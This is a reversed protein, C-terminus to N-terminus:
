ERMIRAYIPAVGAGFLRVSWNILRADLGVRWHARNGHVARWVAQAVRAPPVKVGLRRLTCLSTAKPGIAIRDSPTLRKKLWLVFKADVDTSM